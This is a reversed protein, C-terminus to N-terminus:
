GNVAEIIAAAAAGGVLIVPILWPNAALFALVAPGLEAAAIPGVKNIVKEISMIQVEKTKDVLVAGKLM